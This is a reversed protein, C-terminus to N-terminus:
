RCRFRNIDRLFSLRSLFQVAQIIRLAFLEASLTQQSTAHDFATNAEDLDVGASCMVVVVPVSMRVHFRVVVQVRTFCVFWDGPQDLVQFFAAQQLVRQDDPAAFKSTLRGRFVCRAAPAIVVAVAEGGPHGAASDFAADGDARGVFDAAARHVVGEMDFVHVRGHKVQEPQIWRFQRVEEAAEVVGEDADFTGLSRSPSPTSVM